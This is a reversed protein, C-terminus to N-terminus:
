TIKFAAFYRQIHTSMSEYATDSGAGFLYLRRGALAVRILGNDKGGQSLTIEKGPFGDQTIDTRNRFTANGGGGRPGFGGMQGSGPGKEMGQIFEDLVRGPTVGPATTPDAPLEIYAAIYNYDPPATATYLKVTLPPAGPGV